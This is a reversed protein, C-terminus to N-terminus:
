VAMLYHLCFLLFRLIYIAGQLYQMEHKDIKSRTHCGGVAVVVLFTSFASSLFMDLAKFIHKSKKVLNKQLNCNKERLVYNALFPPIQAEPENRNLLGPSHTGNLGNGLM